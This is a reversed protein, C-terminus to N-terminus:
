GGTNISSFPLYVRAFFFVSVVVAAGLGVGTGGRQGGDWGTRRPPVLSARTSRPHVSHFSPARSVGPGREIRKGGPACGVRAGAGGALAARDDIARSFDAPIARRVPSFDIVFQIM